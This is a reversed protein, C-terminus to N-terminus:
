RTEAYAGQPVQQRSLVALLRLAKEWMGLRCHVAISGENPDVEVEASRMLQLLAPIDPVGKANRRLGALFHQYNLKVGRAHMEQLVPLLLASPFGKQKKLFKRAKSPDKRWQEFKLAGRFGDLLECVKVTEPDLGKPLSIQRARM